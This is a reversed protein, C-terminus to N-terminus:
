YNNLVSYNFVKKELLDRALFVLTKLAKVDDVELFNSQDM